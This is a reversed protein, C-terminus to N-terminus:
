QESKSIIRTGHYLQKKMEGSNGCVRERPGGGGEM